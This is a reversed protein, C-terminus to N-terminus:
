VFEKRLKEIIKKEIRSIQVQSVGIKKAVESQNYDEYYRLYVILREQKTLKDIGEELCLYDLNSYEKKDEITDALIISTDEKEYITEDLSTPYYHSELALIIDQITVNLKNAIIEIHPEQNYKDYYEKKYEIIKIYLEKLGRSVKITGEDRFSKKIEGLILPVAYTSFCVNYSVDFKDIASILGLCGIQFLEEKDKNFSQYRNVLSWVLSMNKEILLKRAELDGKNYLNFLENNSLKNM